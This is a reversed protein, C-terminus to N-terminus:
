GGGGAGGGGNGSTIGAKTRLWTKAADESTLPTMPRVYYSDAGSATLRVALVKGELSETQFELNEGKTNFSRQGLSFQVKYYWYPIYSKTGKYRDVHVFGVGVYPAAADTMTLDPTTQGDSVYGVMDTLAAQPIKALEVAVSAGSVSNDRDIVHDDANFSTDQREESQDVRVMLDTEMTGGTYSMASGEGGSSVKAWTFDRVGIIM